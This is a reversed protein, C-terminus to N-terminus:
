RTYRKWSVKPPLPESFKVPINKGDADFLGFHLHPYGAYGSEGSEGIVQGRYVREGCLVILSNKLLHAYLSESGDDHRVLLFNAKKYFRKELRGPGYRSERGIVVGDRAACIYAGVPLYFDICYRSNPFLFHSPATCRRAKDAAFFPLAYGNKM